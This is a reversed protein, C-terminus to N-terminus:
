LMYHIDGPVLIDRSITQDVAGYKKLIKMEEDDTYQMDLELHLRLVDMKKRGSMKLNMIKNNEVINEEGKKEQMLDRNGGKVVQMAAANKM